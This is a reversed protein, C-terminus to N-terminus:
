CCEQGHPPVTLPTCPPVKLLPAKLGPPVLNPSLHRTNPHPDTNVSAHLTYTCEFSFLSRLRWAILRQAHLSTLPAGLAHCTDPPVPM